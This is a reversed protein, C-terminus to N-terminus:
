CTSRDNYMVEKVDHSGSFSIDLEKLFDLILEYMSIDSNFFIIAHDNLSVTEKTEFSSGLIQYCIHFVHALYMNEFEIYSNYHYVADNFTFM